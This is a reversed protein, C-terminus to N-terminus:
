SRRSYFIQTFCAQSAVILIVQAHRSSRLVIGKMSRSACKKCTYFVKVKVLDNSWYLTHSTCYIRTAFHLRATTKEKCLTTILDIKLPFAETKVVNIRRFSYVQGKSLKSRSCNYFGSSGYGYFVM